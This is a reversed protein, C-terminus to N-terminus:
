RHHKKQYGYIQGLTLENFEGVRGPEVEFKRGHRSRTRDFDPSAIQRLALPGESAARPWVPACRARRRAKAYRVAASSPGDTSRLFDDRGEGKNLRVRRSGTFEGLGGFHIVGMLGSGRTLDFEFRWGASIMERRTSSWVSHAVSNTTLLHARKSRV